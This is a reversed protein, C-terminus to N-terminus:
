SASQTVPRIMRWALLRDGTPWRPARVRGCVFGGCDLYSSYEGPVPSWNSNNPYVSPSKELCGVVANSQFTAKGFRSSSSLTLVKTWINNNNCQKVDKLCAIYYASISSRGTM